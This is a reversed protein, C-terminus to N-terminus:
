STMMEDDNSSSTDADDGDENASAELSPSSSATFGGLCAQRRTIRSVRTSVRCLGDSFTNHCADMRQLQVTIVELTVVGTSSFPTTMSPITSAASGTTEVHPRKLRFQAESRWVSGADIASMTTYYASNHIPISFHCLIRIISSPFIFKDRTATDQYVDLISTIFHFPFDISLDEFFSLLFRAHPETMSNYHSLPNLTFTMVMNLFRPDKEFGSCMTNQKGGWIFPTESFHSLVEDRSM